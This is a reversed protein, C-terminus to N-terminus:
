LSIYCAFIVFLVFFMLEIFFSSCPLAPSMSSRLRIDNAHELLVRADEGEERGGGPYCRPSFRAAGRDGGPAQCPFGRRSGPVRHELDERGGGVSRSPGNEATDFGITQLWINIKCCKELNVTAGIPRFFTRPSKKERFFFVNPPCPPREFRLM